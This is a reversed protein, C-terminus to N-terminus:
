FGGLGGHSDSLAAVHQKAYGIDGFDQANGTSAITVYDIVNSAGPTSGGVFLGRINTCCGGNNFNSRFNMDGFDISNGSSAITVYEIDYSGGFIGRVTNSFGGIRRSYGLNGFFVANGTSSITVFEMSVQTGAFVARVPSAIASAFSRSESLNGFSLANGLTSITVYDIATGSGSLGRTSSSATLPNRCATVLDGFDISNSQSAITVYEINNIAVPGSGMFLGRTTSSFSGMSHYSSLLSGFDQSNGTSSINVYEIATGGTPQGGGFVGRGRGSGDYSGVTRWEYGTYFELQGLDENYRTSGKEPTAIRGSTGGSPLDFTKLVTLSDLRGAALSVGDSVTITKGDAIIIEGSISNLNGKSTEAISVTNGLTQSSNSFGDYRTITSVGGSGTTNDARIQGAVDLRATPLTTGIGVQENLLNFDTAFGIRISPM